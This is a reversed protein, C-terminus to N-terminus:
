SHQITVGPYYHKLIQTYSYGHKAMGNAGYQSMGVGHGYGKTQFTIGSENKEISFDTSRLGLKTRIEVGTFLHDDISIQNVRNGSTKSLITWESNQTVEMQLKTSLDAYSLFQEKIFSPNISDYPSEVSVLYPFSNGWVNEANETYGNSTSHYVAEILSGGYTLVMGKTTEVASKVKSYYTSYSTGWLQKLEENSKYNQTSSNDTLRNNNQIAKLAYTRALIAQAMLAQSDFSAPMEAGVVGIIYEELEIKLVSGNSRYITVYQKPEENQIQFNEQKPHKSEVKQKNNTTAIEKKPIEQKEEKIEAIEEKVETPITELKEENLISVIPQNLQYPETTPIPEKLVLTGVLLGGVILAVKKGTFPIKNKKIYERIEKKIKKRKGTAKLKAFEHDFDFYLYLIEENKIKRIEYNYIM